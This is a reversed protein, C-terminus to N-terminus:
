LPPLPPFDDNNLLFLPERQLATHSPQFRCPATCNIEVYNDELNFNWFVRYRNDPTRMFFQGRIITVPEWNQADWNDHDLNHNQQEQGASELITLLNNFGDILLERTATLVFEQQQVKMLVFTLDDSQELEADDFIDNWDEQIKRLFIAQNLPWQGASTSGADIIDFRYISQFQRPNNPQVRHLNFTLPGCYSVLVHNISFELDVIFQNDDSKAQIHPWQTEEDIEVIPVQWQVNHWSLQDSETDLTFLENFPKLVYETLIEARYKDNFPRHWEQTYRLFNAMENPWGGPGYPVVLKSIIVGQVALQPPDNEDPGKYLFAPRKLVATAFAKNNVCYVNHQRSM